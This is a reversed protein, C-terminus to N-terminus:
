RRAERGLRRRDALVEAAHADPKVKEYVRAITGKPDILFSRRHIGMFERGMFKKKGWVGYTRVVEKGEDALLPFPLDYRAAFRAHKAVPDASVGLVTTELRRFAAHEDRFACAERTCGPTDDRPYFYVLVWQGRYSSLSHDKGDQDPLKFDPAREGERPMM